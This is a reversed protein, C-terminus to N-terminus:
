PTCDTGDTMQAQLSLQENVWTDRVEESFGALEARLIALRRRFQGGNIRLPRHLPVIPRGTYAVDGGLTRVAHQFEHLKIRELDKGEFFFGIVFDAAMRDVFRDVAARM